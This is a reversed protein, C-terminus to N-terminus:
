SQFLDSWKVKTNGDLKRFNKVVRGNRIAWETESDEERKAKLEQVLKKHEERQKPTRDITAFIEIDEGNHSLTLNKSAFLMQKKKEIGSYKIVLPRSATSKKGVRFLSIIENHELSTDKYMNKLMNYDHKMRNSINEDSSEPVNFYILNSKKTEILEMEDGTMTDCQNRNSTVSTSVTTPASRAKECEKLREEFSTLTEDVKKQMKGIEQSFKKFKEFNDLINDVDDKCLICYWKLCTSKSTIVTIEAESLKSCPSHYKTKCGHCEIVKDGRKLEEDCSGCFLKRPAM